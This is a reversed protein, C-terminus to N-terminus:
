HTGTGAVAPPRDKWGLKWGAMLHFRLLNLQEAGFTFVGSVNRTVGVDLTWASRRGARFGLQVGGIISFLPVGVGSGLGFATELGAYPELMVGGPRFVGKVLLPATFTVFYTGDGNLLRLKVDLELALYRRLGWEVGALAAPMIIGEENKMGSGPLQFHGSDVGAALTLYFAKNRWSDDPPAEQEVYVIQDEYEIQEVVEVRDVYEVKDVYRDVFEVREVLRDVYEVRVEPEPPPAEVRPAPAKPPPPPPPPPAAIRLVFPNDKFAGRYDGYPRAFVRLNFYTGDTVTLEGHRGDEYGYRLVPPIFIHFAWGLEAHWEPTSDILTWRDKNRAIFVGNIIQAEDGNVENWAAARYTYNHSKRAPDRTSEALLASGAGPKKRIFLHVGEEGARREILLDGPGIDLDQAHLPAYFAPLTFLALAARLFTRPLYYTTVCRKYRM